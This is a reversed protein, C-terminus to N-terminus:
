KTLIKGFSGQEILLDINDNDFKFFNSLKESLNTFQEQIKILFDEREQTHDIIIYESEIKKWDELHHCLYDKEVFNEIVRGFIRQGNMGYEAKTFYKKTFVEEQEFGDSGSLLKHSKVLMEYGLFFRFSLSQHLGTYAGNMQYRTQNSKEEFKIFIKKKQSQTEISHRNLIIITMESFCKRLHSISTSVQTKKFKYTITDRSFCGFPMKNNVDHSTKFQPETNALENFIYDPIVVKWEADDWFEGGESLSSEVPLIISEPKSFDKSPVSFQVKIKM